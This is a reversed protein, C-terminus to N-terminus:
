PEYILASVKFPYSVGLDGPQGMSAHSGGSFIEHTESQSPPLGEVDVPVVPHLLLSDETKSSEQSPISPSGQAVGAPHSDAGAVDHSGM